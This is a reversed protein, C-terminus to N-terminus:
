KTRKFNFSQNPNRNRQQVSRTVFRLNGPEYNGNNNIRDLTLDPNNWGSLTECYKIFAKPNNRWDKFLKIGRGGYYKYDKDLPNDIRKLINYYTMYLHHHSLGHKFNHKLLYEKHLCGCSKTLGKILSQGNIIILNGEICRCNWRTKGFRDNSARSIVTLRGFIQGTLDNPKTV